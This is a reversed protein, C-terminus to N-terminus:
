SACRGLQLSYQRMRAWAPQVLLTPRQQEFVKTPLTLKPLNEPLSAFSLEVVIVPPQILLVHAPQVFNTGVFPHHYHIRFSPVRREEVRRRKTEEFRHGLDVGVVVRLPQAGDDDNIGWCREGEAPLHHPCPEVLLGTLLDVNNGGAVRDPRFVAYERQSVWGLERLLVAPSSGRKGRPWFPRRAGPQWHQCRLYHCLM